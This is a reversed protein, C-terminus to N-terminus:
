KKADKRAIGKEFFLKELRLVMDVARKERTEKKKGETIYKCYEKKMSASYSDFLKKAERSAKFGEKLEVPIEIVPMDIDKEFEIIVKDGADKKIEKRFDANVPLCHNGNGMPMLTMGKFSKADVTGKVKIYGGTGFTKKADIPVVIVTWSGVKELKAKFKFLSM